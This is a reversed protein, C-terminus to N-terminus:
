NTLEAVRADKARSGASSGFFYFVVAAVLTDLTGLTRMVSPNEAIAAAITPNVILTGQVWFFGVLVMGGLVNPMWDKMAVQRARANARDEADIKEVDIEAARMAELFKHEAEKLKVLDDPTLTAVKAKLADQTPPIGLVATAINVAMQGLPGGIMRAVNPAFSGLTKKWDM